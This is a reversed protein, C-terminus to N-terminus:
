TVDVGLEIHNLHGLLGLRLQGLDDVLDAVEHAPQAPLLVLVCESQSLVPLSIWLCITYGVM